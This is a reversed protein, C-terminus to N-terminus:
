VAPPATAPWVEVDSPRVPEGAYARVVQDPWQEVVAIHNDDRFQQYAVLVGQTTRGGATVDVVATGSSVQALAAGDLQPTGDASPQIEHLMAIETAGPGVYLWLVSGESRSPVLRALRWRRGEAFYAALNEVIYDSGDYTVADRVALQEFAATSTLPTNATLMATPSVGPQERGRILLDERQDVAQRLERFGTQATEPHDRLRRVRERVLDDYRQLVQMGNDDLQVLDQWAGTGHAPNQLDDALMRLDRAPLAPDNALSRLTSSTESRFVRDADLVRQKRSFAIASREEEPQRSLVYWGGGALPGALVFVLLLGLVFGGGSAGSVMLWVLMLLTIGAAAAVLGIGLARGGSM